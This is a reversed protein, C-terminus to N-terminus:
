KCGAMASIFEKWLLLSVALIGAVAAVYATWYLVQQALQWARNAKM